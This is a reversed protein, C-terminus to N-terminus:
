VHVSAHRPYLNSLSIKLACNKFWFKLPFVHSICYKFSVTKILWKEWKLTVSGMFHLLCSEIGEMCMNMRSFGENNRVHQAGSLRLCSSNSVCPDFMRFIACWILWHDLIYLTSVRFLFACSKFSSVVVMFNTKAIKTQTWSQDIAVAAVFNTLIKM